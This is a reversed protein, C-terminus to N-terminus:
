GRRLLTFSGAATLLYAVVLFPTLEANTVGLNLAINACAHFALNGLLSPRARLYVVCHIASWAFMSAAFLWPSADAQLSGAVLFMPAHWVGWVLALALAASRPGMFELLRPLAYGRWGLEEGLVVWIQGVAILAFDPALGLRPAAVGTTVVMMAWALGIIAPQALVALALTTWRVPTLLAARLFGLRAGSRQLVVAALAPAALGALYLYTAPRDIRLSFHLGTAAIAGHLGFTMALSLACFRM